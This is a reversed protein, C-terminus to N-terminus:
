GSSSRERRAFLGSRWRNADGSLRLGMASFIGDSSYHENGARHQVAKNRVTWLWKLYRVERQIAEFRGRLEADPHKRLEDGLAQLSEIKPIPPDACSRALVVAGAVVVHLQQYFGVTGLLSDLYFDAGLVAYRAQYDPALLPEASRQWLIVDM